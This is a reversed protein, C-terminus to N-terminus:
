KMVLRVVLELEVSLIRESVACDVVIDLSSVRRCWILVVQLSVGEVCRRM